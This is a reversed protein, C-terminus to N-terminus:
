VKLKSGQLLCTGGNPSLIHHSQSPRVRLATLSIDLSPRPITEGGQILYASQLRQVTLLSRSGLLIPSACIRLRTQRGDADYHNPFM